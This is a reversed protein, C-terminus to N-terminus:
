RNQNKKYRHFSVGALFWNGDPIHYYPHQVPVEKHFYGSWCFVVMDNFVTYGGPHDKNTIGIKQTKM